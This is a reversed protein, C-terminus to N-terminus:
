HHAILGGAAAYMGAWMPAQPLSVRLPPKGPEGILSMMGSLAMAILDSGKYDRYPGRQGFPTISILVIRRNLARLAEFGLGLEDLRGPPYTEIVFDASRALRRFLVQGRLDELNLTIGRKDTNYSLWYLSQRDRGTQVM